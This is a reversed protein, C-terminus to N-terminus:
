FGRSVERWFAARKGDWALYIISKLTSTLWMTASLANAQWQGHHKEIYQLKARYLRLVRGATFGSSGGGVHVARAGPVYIVRWGAEQARKCLDIEESFMFFREDFLGIEDLLEKSVMMCAGDVTDVPQVREGGEGSMKQDRRKDLGVLSLMEGIPSPLNGHSRQGRGDPYELRAGAVGARAERVLAAMLGEVAGEMLFADSNLLLAYRGSCDKLAQNNAKAFGLNENNEILRVQPFEARVMAGSDDTSGNDIVWVEFPLGRVTGFVSELCGRLLERTNWNVIIITLDLV